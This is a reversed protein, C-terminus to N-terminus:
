YSEMALTLTTTLELGTTSVARITLEYQGPTLTDNERTTVEGTDEIIGFIEHTDDFLEGDKKISVIEFTSKYEAPYFAPASTKSGGTLAFHLFDLHISMDDEPFYMGYFFKIQPIFIVRFPTSAVPFGDKLLAPELDYSM